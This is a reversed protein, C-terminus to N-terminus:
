FLFAELQVVGFAESKEISPLCFVNSAAFYSSLEEHRIFGLLKVKDELKYRQILELLKQKEEGNGGILIIYDDPLFKASEVLYEFGKYYVLRGLSFIIKKGKY